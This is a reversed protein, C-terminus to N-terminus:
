KVLQLLQAKTAIGIHIKYQKGDRFSIFTPAAKVRYMKVLDPSDDIDLKVFSYESFETQMQELLPIMTRCGTCWSAGFEVVTTKNSNIVEAEFNQSDVVKLSDM